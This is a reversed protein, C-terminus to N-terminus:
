FTFINQKLSHLIANLNFVMWIRGVSETVHSCIAMIPKYTLQSFNLRPNMELTRYYHTAWWYFRCHTESQSFPSFLWDFCTWCPHILNGKDSKIYGYLLTEVGSSLVLNTCSALRHLSTIRARCAVSRTVHPSVNCVFKFSTYGCVWESHRHAQVKHYTQKRMLYACMFYKLNWKRKGSKTAVRDLTKM